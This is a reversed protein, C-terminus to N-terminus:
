YLLEWATRYGDQQELYDLMKKYFLDNGITSSDGIIILKQKARTLAVNMRRYDKLFGIEHQPNSRVLSLIVNPIEQGQFSDITATKIVEIEQAIALSIQGSYPSIFATTEKSLGLHDIIKTALEIEGPNSLSNGNEGQEEEFGTGATDYFFISDKEVSRKEPTILQNQYFYDNSFGVMQGSMRYQTNLLIAPHALLSIELISTELGHKAAEFSIVTPPLQFPDGALVIKRFHPQLVVWAFPQLCQGAEDMVITKFQNDKSVEALGIPTGCIVQADDMWKQQYFSITQRIEKKLSKYHQWIAQRQEREEKGFNRKYQSAMRRFEQAQIKMKKLEQFVSGETLKGEITHPQLTTSIKAPNGIRLVKIGREILSIALHDVAMNSPAVAIVKEGQLTLQRVAEVLTTTKGTGPPGHLISVMADGLITQVATNQSENLRNSSTFTWNTDNKIKEGKLLSRVFPHNSTLTDVAEMAFQISKEDVGVRIGVKQREIWEPFDDSQLQIRGEDENLYLIRASLHDGDQSFLEAKTQNRFKEITQGNPPIFALEPYEAFGYSRNTIRIPYIGFGNKKLEKISAYSSTVQQQQDLLELRLGEKLNVQYDELKFSM